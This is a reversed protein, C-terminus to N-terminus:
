RRPRQRVIDRTLEGKEMQVIDVSGILGDAEGITSCIQGLLGPLDPYRLRLITSYSPSHQKVTNQNSDTAPWKQRQM